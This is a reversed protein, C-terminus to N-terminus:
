SNVLVNGECLAWCFPAGRSAIGLLLFLTLGGLLGGARERECVREREREREREAEKSHQDM